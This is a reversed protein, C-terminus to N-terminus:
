MTRPCQSIARQSKTASGWWRLQSLMIGIDKDFWANKEGLEHAAAVTVSAPVPLCGLEVLFGRCSYGAISGGHASVSYSVIGSVKGNYSSPPFHDMFNTLVPSINRNYEPTIVVYADAKKIREHLDQLLQPAESQEEYFHIPKRLLPLELVDPDMFDVNFGDLRKKLYEAVKKGIRGDRISGLIVVLNLEM